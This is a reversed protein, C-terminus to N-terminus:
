NTTGQSLPGSTITGGNGNNFTYKMLNMANLDTGIAVM